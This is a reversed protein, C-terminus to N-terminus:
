NRVNWGRRDGRTQMKKQDPAVATGGREKGLTRLILEAYLNVSEKNTLRVIEGLTGSTISALEVSGEPDGVRVKKSERADTMRVDGEITIGRRKIADALLRAAWLAPRHVALRAKVASGGVPSNGWIRVNNDSLGRTVGLTPQAGREVTELDNEIQIYGTEPKLTVGAPDGPNNAPAITFNVANDNVSLASVEAGFYWQVDNWLWGDGLPEGRFYSEDGVIDGRIRRVGRSHLEDALQDMSARRDGREVFSSLDPAGRGYLLLDGAITGSSDPEAGAYVSTRWRYDAGLLDLAVATTYLKLNSAPAFAKDANRVYLVRRDRLSMVFIGWRAAGLGSENILRDINRGMEGTSTTTSVAIQPLGRGLSRLSATDASQGQLPTFSAASLRRPSRAAAFTFLLLLVACIALALARRANLLKTAM